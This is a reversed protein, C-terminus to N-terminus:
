RLNFDPVIAFQVRFIYWDQNKDWGYTSLLRPSRQAGIGLQRGQLGAQSQGEQGQGQLLLFRCHSPVRLAPIAYELPQISLLLLITLMYWQNGIIVSLFSTRQINESKSGNIVHGYCISEYKLHYQVKIKQNFTCEILYFILPEISAVIVCLWTRQRQIKDWISHFLQFWKYLWM